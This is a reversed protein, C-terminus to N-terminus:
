MNINPPCLYARASRADRFPWSELAQLIEAPLRKWDDANYMSASNDVREGM